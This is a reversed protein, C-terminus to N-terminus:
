ALTGALLALVIPSRSDQGGTMVLEKEGGKVREEEDKRRM